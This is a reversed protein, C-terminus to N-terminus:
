PVLLLFDGVCSQLRDLIMPDLDLLLEQPGSFGSFFEDRDIMGAKRSGGGLPSVLHDRRSM